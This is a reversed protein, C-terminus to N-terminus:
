RLAKKLLAAIKEEEAGNLKTLAFAVPWMLGDDLKAAASFGFTAYRTKFKQASQFFCVVKDNKAYAPMGYWTKPSLSPANAKVIAHLKEALARDAPPMAAIKALVEAEGDSKNGRAEAQMEKVRAQMAEREAKTFGKAASKAPKRVSKKAAPSM